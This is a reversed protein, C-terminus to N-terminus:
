VDTSDFEVMVLGPAQDEAQPQGDVEMRTENDQEDVCYVLILYGWREYDSGM